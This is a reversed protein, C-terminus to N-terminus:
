DEGFIKFDQRRASPTTKVAKVARIQRNRVPCLQLSVSYLEDKESKEIRHWFQTMFKKMEIRFEPLASKPIALIMALMERDEMPDELLSDFHMSMIQRHFKRIASSPVDTLTAFADPQAILQGDKDKSLFGLEALREIAERAQNPTIGLREAVYEPRSDFGEVQTLELIASHFWDSIVRFQDEKLSRFTESRRLDDIRKQALERVKKSSSTEVLILDRWFKRETPKLGLKLAVSEATKESVLQRGRLIESLSSPSLALDRAFARLSYVQNRSKRREFELELFDSIKSCEFASNM